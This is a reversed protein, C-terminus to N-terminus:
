YKIKQFDGGHLGYCYTGSPKRGAPKICNGEERYDEVFVIRQRLPLQPMLGHMQPLLGRQQDDGEVNEIDGKPEDVKDTELLSAAGVVFYGKFAGGVPQLRAGAEAREGLGEVPQPFSVKM